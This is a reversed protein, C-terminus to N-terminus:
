IWFVWGIKCHSFTVKFCKHIVNLQVNGIKKNGVPTVNSKLKYGHKFASPVWEICAVLWNPM